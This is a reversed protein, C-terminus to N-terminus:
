PVVKISEAPLEPLAVTIDRETVPGLETLPRDLGQSPGLVLTALDGPRLHKRAAAAVQEATVAEIGPQFRNLWNPPYGYFTYALQRNLVKAPTDLKFVFSNLLASKARALEEASPPAAAMKVLEERMAELGAVTTSQKTSMWFMTVGPRAFASGVEGTATYALGKQTRVTSFMRSGLGGALIQNMVEVAFFDPDDARIGHYGMAIFSQSLDENRIHRLGPTPAPLSQIQELPRESGRSWDGFTQRLLALVQAPEFDGVLGLITRNPHFQERHWAVVDDRTIARASAFTPFRAWPSDDGYVIEPFERFLIGQPDDNQRMVTANLATQAVGLPVEEFRPRRLVDALAALVEPLDASLSAMRVTVMDKDANTEIAAAKGELFDDLQEASREGAGGTRLVEAGVQVLGVKDAPDDITGTRVAVLADVLPLERRVVMLVTLGNGLMAREVKPVNLPPLAPYRLEDVKQVQASVPASGFLALGALAASLLQSTRPPKM